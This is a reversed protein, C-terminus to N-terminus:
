HDLRKLTFLPNRKALDAEHAQDSVPKLGVQWWTRARL